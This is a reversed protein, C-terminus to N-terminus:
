RVWGVRVAQRGHFAFTFMRGLHPFPGGHPFSHDQPRAPPRRVATGSLFFGLLFLLGVLLTM